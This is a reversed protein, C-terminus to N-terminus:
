PKKSRNKQKKLWTQKIRRLTPVSLGRQFEAPLYPRLADLVEVLSGRGNRRNLRLQGGAKDAAGLLNEVFHKRSIEARKGPQKITKFRELPHVAKAVEDVAAIHRDAGLLLLQPLAKLAEKLERAHRGAKAAVKATPSVSTSDGFVEVAIKIRLEFEQRNSSKLPFGYVDTVLPFDKVGALQAVKALVKPDVAIRRM